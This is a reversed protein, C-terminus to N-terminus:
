DAPEPNSDRAACGYQGPTKAGWTKTKVMHPVASPGDQAAM